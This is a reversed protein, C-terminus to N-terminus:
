GGDPKGADRKAVEKLMAILILEDLEQSAELVLPHQLGHKEGLRNMKKRQQEIRRHLRDAM